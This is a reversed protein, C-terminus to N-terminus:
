VLVRWPRRFLYLALREPAFNGRRDTVTATEFGLRGLLWGIRPQAPNIVPVSTFLAEYGAARARQAIPGDFKGHPFSMTPAPTAHALCAALQRRAGTLEADLDPARTMPEHTKGHLGLAVGHQQLQTLELPTVMHRMPDALAEGLQGAVAERAALPMQELAAILPRLAALTEDTPAAVSAGHATLTVHLQRLTLRGTRVAGVLQEQLFPQDRGIADAAVFMLAPQGAAQLAPLAYDVNDKWGDDFTILLAHQPLSRESRVAALVEDHSVVQYHRAFFRLCREFLALPLTYDPDCSAWRPDRPDLVRHFMIVTLTRRNRLRHYLSLAGSVYALKRALDSLLIRM